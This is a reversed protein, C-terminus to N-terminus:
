SAEEFRMEDHDFLLERGSALRVPTKGGHGRFRIRTWAKLLKRISRADQQPLTRLNVVRGSTAARGRVSRAPRTEVPPLGLKERARDAVQNAYSNKARAYALLADPSVTEM